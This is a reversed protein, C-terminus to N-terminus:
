SDLRRTFNSTRVPQIRKRSIDGVLYLIPMRWCKNRWAQIQKPHVPLQEALDAMKRDGKLASLALEANFSALHNRRKRKM